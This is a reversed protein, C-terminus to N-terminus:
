PIYPGPVVSIAIPDDHIDIPQVATILDQDEVLLVWALDGEIVIVTGPDAEIPLEAMTGAGMVKEALLAGTAANRVRFVGQADAYAVVTVNYPPMVATLRSGMRPDQGVVWVLDHALDGEPGEEPVRAKRGIAAAVVPNDAEVIVTSRTSAPVDLDIPVGPELRVNGAGPWPQEGATDILTLSVSAGEPAMLRVTAPGDRGEPDSPGVGPIVLRTTPMAGAVVWESGAPLFGDLRSDQIAAVVGAGDAEVHVVLTSLEVAIGELLFSESSRPGMSAIVSQEVQGTPGYITAVVESIVGSPNILVLRASSGIHTSAGVLWLDIRPRACTAAALGSLDGQSVREVQVGIPADSAVGFGISEVQNGSPVLVTRLVDSTGPALGGENEGADGVPLEMWGVCGVPLDSPMVETTTPTRVAVDEPTPDLWAATGAVVGLALIGTIVRIM